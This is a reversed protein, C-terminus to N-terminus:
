SQKFTGLIWIIYLLDADSVDAEEYKIEGKINHTASVNWGHPDELYQNEERYKRCSDGKRASCTGAKSSIGVNTIRV